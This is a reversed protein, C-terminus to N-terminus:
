SPDRGPGQSEPLSGRRRAGPRHPRERGGPGNRPTRPRAPAAVRKSHQQQWTTAAHHLLCDCWSSSLFAVRAVPTGHTSRGRNRLLFRQQGQGHEGLKTQRRDHGRRLGEVKRLGVVDSSEQPPRPEVASFSPHGAATNLRARCGASLARRKEARSQDSSTM